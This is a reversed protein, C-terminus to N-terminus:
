RSAIDIIVALFDYSVLTESGRVPVRLCIVLFEGASIVGLWEGSMERESLM